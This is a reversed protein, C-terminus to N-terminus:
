RPLAMVVEEPSRLAQWVAEKLKRLAVDRNLSNFAKVDDVSFVDFNPNQARIQQFVRTMAEASAPKAGCQRKLSEKEVRKKLKSAAFLSFAMKSHAGLTM